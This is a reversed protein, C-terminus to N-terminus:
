VEEVKHGKLRLLTAQKPKLWKVESPPDFLDDLEDIWITWGKMTFPVKKIGDKEKKLEYVRYQQFGRLPLLATRAQELRTKLDVEFRPTKSNKSVYKM